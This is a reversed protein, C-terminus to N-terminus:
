GKRTFWDLMDEGCTRNAAHSFRSGGTILDLSLGNLADVGNEGVPNPSRFLAIRDILDANLLAEALQAGGEVMLDNIGADGLCQLVSLLDPRGDAGADVAVVEVGAAKLAQMRDAPVTNTCYVCTPVTRATTVLTCTAPIELQTDVVVRIPSRAELGELRCTLAPDDIIVTNKGVLIADSRARLLHSRAHAQPGTIVTSKGEGEAIKGDSSVALKLTVCPRGHEIRSLFGALDCRAQGAGPGIDVAIGAARLNDFGQGSVRPDPDAMAAVVRTVGADILASCCPPTKGHHSCPELTVYATGGRAADGASALAMTEAHPRGGPATWGRGVIHAQEGQTSAIVCGVSPNEATAGRNRRGLRLAVEMFATDLMTM